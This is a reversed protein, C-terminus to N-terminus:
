SIPKNEYRPDHKSKPVTTKCSIASYSFHLSSGILAIASIASKREPYQEIWKTVKERVRTIRENQASTLHSFQHSVSM